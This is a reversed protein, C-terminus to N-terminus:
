ATVEQPQEEFVPLSTQKDKGFWDQYRAEIREDSFFSIEHSLDSAMNGVTSLAAKFGAEFGLKMGDNFGRSYDTPM